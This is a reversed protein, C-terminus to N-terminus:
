VVNNREKELWSICDCEVGASRPGKHSQISVVEMSLTLMDVDSDIVAGLELANIGVVWGVRKAALQPHDLLLLGARSVRRVTGVLSGLGGHRERPTTDRVSADKTPVLIIAITFVPCLGM